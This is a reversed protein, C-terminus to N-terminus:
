KGEEPPFDEQYRKLAEKLAAETDGFLDEEKPIEDQPKKQF